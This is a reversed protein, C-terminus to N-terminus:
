EPFMLLEDCKWVSGAEQANIVELVEVLAETALEQAESADADGLGSQGNGGVANFTESAQSWRRPHPSWFLRHFFM